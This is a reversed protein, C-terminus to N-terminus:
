SLITVLIYPNVVSDLKPALIIEVLMDKITSM